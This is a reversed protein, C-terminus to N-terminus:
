IHTLTHNYLCDHYKANSKNIRFYQSKLFVPSMTYLQNNIEIMKAYATNLMDVVLYDGKGSKINKEASKLIDTRLFKQSIMLYDINTVPEAKENGVITFLSTWLSDTYVDYNEHLKLSALMESGHLRLKIRGM